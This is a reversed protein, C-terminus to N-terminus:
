GLYSDMLAINEIEEIISAIEIDTKGAGKLIDKYDIPISSGKPDVWEPFTHTMECIDWRSMKGYKEFIENILSEEAESLSENGPDEILTVKHNAPASVTEGWIGKTPSEGNLLRYTESVVPGLPMSVYNDFIIPRRWRLLAEREALYLLKILKLHYMANGRLKLFLAAVQAAKDERYIPKMM